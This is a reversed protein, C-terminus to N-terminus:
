GRVVEHPGILLLHVGKVNSLRLHSMDLALSPEREPEVWDSVDILERQLHRLLSSARQRNRLNRHDYAM